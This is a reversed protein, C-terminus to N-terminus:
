GQNILSEAELWADQKTGRFGSGNHLSDLTKKTDSLELLKKLVARHRELELETPTLLEAKHWAVVMLPNNDATRTIVVDSYHVFVRVAWPEREFDKVKILTGPEVKSWDTEFFAKNEALAEQAYELEDKHIPEGYYGELDPKNKIEGGGLTYDVIAKLALYLNKM